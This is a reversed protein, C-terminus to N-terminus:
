LSAHTHHWNLDSYVYSNYYEEQNTQSLTLPAKYVIQKSQKFIHTLDIPNGDKDPIAVLKGNSQKVYKAKKFLRIFAHCPQLHINSYEMSQTYIHENCFDCFLQTNTCGSLEIQM